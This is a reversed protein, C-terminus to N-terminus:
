LRHNCLKPFDVQSHNTKKKIKLSKCSNAKSIYGDFANSGGWDLMDNNPYKLSVIKNVKFNLQIVVLAQGIKM